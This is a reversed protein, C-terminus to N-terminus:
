LMNGDHMIAEKGYPTPCRPWCEYRDLQGPYKWSGWQSITPSGSINLTVQYIHVNNWSFPQLHAGKNIGATGRFKFNTPHRRGKPFTARVAFIWFQYSSCSCVDHCVKYRWNITRQGSTELWRCVTRTESIHATFTKSFNVSKTCCQMLM